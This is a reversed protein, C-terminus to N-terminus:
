INSIRVRLIMRLFSCIRLFIGLILINTFVPGTCVGMGVQTTAMDSFPVVGNALECATIGLSYIDSKCNYGAMNQFPAYMIECHNLEAPIM